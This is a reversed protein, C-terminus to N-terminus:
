YKMKLADLADLILYFADGRKCKEASHSKGSVEFFDFFDSNKKEIKQKKLAKTTELQLFLPKRIKKLRLYPASKPRERSTLLNFLGPGAWTPAMDLAWFYCFSKLIDFYQHISSGKIFFFSKSFLRVIGFFQFLPVKPIKWCGNQRLLGFFNFLGKPSFNDLFLRAIGFFQFPPGKPRRRYQMNRAFGKQNLEKPWRFCNPTKKFNQQVKPLVIKMVETTYFFINLSVSSFGHSYDARKLVITPQSFLSSVLRECIPLVWRKMSFISSFDLKQIVSKM